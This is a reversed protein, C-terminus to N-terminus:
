DMAVNQQHHHETHAHSGQLSSIASAQGEGEAQEERGHLLLIHTGLMCLEVMLLHFRMSPM